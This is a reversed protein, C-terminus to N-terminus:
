SNIDSINNELGDLLYNGEYVGCSIFNSYIAIYKDSVHYYAIGGYGKYRVHYEAM